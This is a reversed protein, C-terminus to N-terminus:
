LALDLRDLVEGAAGGVVEDAPSLALFAALRDLVGAEEVTDLNGTLVGFAQDHLRTDLRAPDGLFLEGPLRRLRRGGFVLRRSLSYGPSAGRMSAMTSGSSSLPGRVPLDAVIRIHATLRSTRGTSSSIRKTREGSPTTTGSRLRLSGPRPRQIVAERALTASATRRLWNLRPNLRSTRAACVRAESVSVSKTRLAISASAMAALAPWTTEPKALTSSASAPPCALDCTSARIWAESPAASPIRLNSAM